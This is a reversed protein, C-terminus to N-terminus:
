PQNPPTPLPMWHTVNPQCFVHTNTVYNFWRNRKGEMYGISGKTYTVYQSVVIVGDKDISLTRQNLRPKRKKISIWEM